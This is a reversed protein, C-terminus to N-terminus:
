FVIRAQSSKIPTPYFEPCWIYNIEIEPSNITLLIKLNRSLKNLIVSSNTHLEEWTDITVFYDM